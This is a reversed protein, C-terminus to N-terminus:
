GLCFYRVLVKCSTFSPTTVEKSKDTQVRQVAGPSNLHLPHSSRNGLLLNSTSALVKQPTQEQRKSILFTNTSPSGAVVTKAQSNCRTRSGSSALRVNWIDTKTQAKVTSAKKPIKFSIKPVLAPFQRGDQQKHSFDEPLKPEAASDVYKVVPLSKVTKDHSTTVCVAHDFEKSRRSVLKKRMEKLDESQSERHASSNSTVNKEDRRKADTQHEPSLSRKLLKRRKEHEKSPSDDQAPKPKEPASRRSVLKQRQTELEKSSPQNTATHRSFSKGSITPSTNDHKRRATQKEIDETIHSKVTRSMETAKSKLIGEKSKKPVVDTKTLREKNPSISQTSSDTGRRGKSKEKDVSFDLSSDLILIYFLVHFIILYISKLSIQVMVGLIYLVLYLMELFCAMHM